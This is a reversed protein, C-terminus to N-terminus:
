NKREDENTPKRKESRKIKDQNPLEVGDTLHRKCSENSAHCM